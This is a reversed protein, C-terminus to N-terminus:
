RGCNFGCKNSELINVWLPPQWFRQTSLSHFSSVFGCNYQSEGLFFGSAVRALHLSPLVHYWLHYRKFDWGTKNQHHIELWRVTTVRAKWKRVRSQKGPHLWMHSQLTQAVLWHHYLLFLCLSEAEVEPLHAWLCLSHPEFDQSALFPLLKQVM